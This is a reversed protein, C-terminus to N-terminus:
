TAWWTSTMVRRERTGGPCPGCRSGVDELAQELGEVHDVLDDREDAGALVPGRGAVAEHGLRELEALHLGLVDEVHAEALEGAQRRM